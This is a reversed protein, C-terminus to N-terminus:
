IRAIKLAGSVCFPLILYELGLGLIFAWLASIIAGLWFRQCFQCSALDYVWKKPQGAAYDFFRKWIGWKDFLSDVFATLCTVLVLNILM